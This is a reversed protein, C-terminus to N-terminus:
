RELVDIYKGDPLNGSGKYLSKMLIWQTHMIQNITVDNFEINFGICRKVRSTM